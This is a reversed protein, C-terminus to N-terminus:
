GISVAEPAIKVRLRRTMKPATIDGPRLARLAIRLLTGPPLGSDECLIALHAADADNLRLGVTKRDAVTQAM